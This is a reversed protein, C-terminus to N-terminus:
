GTTTAPTDARRELGELYLAVTGLTDRIDHTWQAITKSDM